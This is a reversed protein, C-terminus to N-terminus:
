NLKKAHREFQKRIIVKTDDLANDLLRTVIQFVLRVITQETVTEPLQKQLDEPKPLVRCEGKITFKLSGDGCMEYTMYCDNQKHYMKYSVSHGATNCSVTKFGMQSELYKKVNMDLKEVSKGM